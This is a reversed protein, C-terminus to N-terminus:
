MKIVDTLRNKVFSYGESKAEKLQELTQIVNAPLSRVDLFEGIFNFTIGAECFIVREKEFSSAKITNTEILSTAEDISINKSPSGYTHVIAVVVEAKSLLSGLYYFGESSFLDRDKMSEM